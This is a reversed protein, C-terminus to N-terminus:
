RPLFKKVMWASVWGLIGGAVIDFPYHVGVFVRAVGMVAAGALFYVFWKRRVFYIATALAFFFTAHGSPFSAEATKSILTTIEPTALFPRPRHYFFRILETIFLRSVILSLAVLFADYFRKRWDKESFIIIAAAVVLIYALYQAFFIGLFDLIRSKGALSNLASFLYLDVAM